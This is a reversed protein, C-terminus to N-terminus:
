AEAQGARSADFFNMLKRSFGQKSPTPLEDVSEVELAKLYLEIELGAECAPKQFLYGYYDTGDLNKPAARFGALDYIPYYLYPDIAVFQEPIRHSV